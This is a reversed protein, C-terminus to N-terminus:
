VKKPAPTPMARKPVAPKKAQAAAAKLSAVPNAPRNLLNAITATGTGAPANTQFGELQNLVPISNINALLFAFVAAHVLVAVTSTKCSMFVKKGVPPLTLLLGPSLLIFLAVAGLM